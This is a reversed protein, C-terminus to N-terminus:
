ERSFAAMETSASQRSVTQNTPRQAEYPKWDEGTIQAFADVAGQAAALLAYAQLGMEAAFSRARAARDEFGSPGGRDEDRDDNALKSTLDQAQSVKQGYFQGAGCASGVYAGVIRQLHIQMARENLNDVLANASRVMHEETAERIAHFDVPELGFTRSLNAALAEHPCIATALELTFTQRQETKRPRNPTSKQTQAMIEIERAARPTLRGLAPEGGRTRGASAPGPPLPFGQPRCTTRSRLSVTGDSGSASRRQAFRPNFPSVGPRSRVCVSPHAPVPKSWAGPLPISRRLPAPSAAVSPM